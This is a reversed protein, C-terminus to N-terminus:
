VITVGRAKAYWHEAHSRPMKQGGVSYTHTHHNEDTLIFAAPVNTMIVDEHNEDAVEDVSKTSATPVAATRAVPAAALPDVGTTRPDPNISKRTAM